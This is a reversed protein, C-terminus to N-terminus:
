LAAQLVFKVMQKYVHKEILRTKRNDTSKRNDPEFSVFVLVSLPSHVKNTFCVERSHSSFTTITTSMSFLYYEKVTESATKKGKTESKKLRCM